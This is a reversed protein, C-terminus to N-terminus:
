LSWELKTSTVQLSKLLYAAALPKNEREVSLDHVPM